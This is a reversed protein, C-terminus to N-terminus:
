LVDRSTIKPVKFVFWRISPSQKIRHRKICTRSYNTRSLAEQSVTSMVDTNNEHTFAHHIDKNPCKSNLEANPSSLFEDWTISFDNKDM